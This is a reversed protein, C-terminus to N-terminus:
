KLFTLLVVAVGAGVAVGRWFGGRWGDNWVAKESVSTTYFKEWDEDEM